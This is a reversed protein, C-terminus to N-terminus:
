PVISLKLAYTKEEETTCLWASLSRKRNSFQKYQFQQGQYSSVKDGPLLNMKQGHQNNIEITQGANFSFEDEEREALSEAVSVLRSLKAEENEAEEFKKKEEVSKEQMVM